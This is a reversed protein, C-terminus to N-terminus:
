TSSCRMCFLPFLASQHVAMCSIPGHMLYVFLAHLVISPSLENTCMWTLRQAIHYTPACRMCFLPFFLSIQACGYWINLWLTIRRVACLTLSTFPSRNPIKLSRKHKYSVASLYLGTNCISYCPYWSGSPNVICDFLTLSYRTSQETTTLYTLYSWAKDLALACFSV